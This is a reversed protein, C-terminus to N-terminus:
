YKQLPDLPEPSVLRMTQANNLTKPLEATSILRENSQPRVPKQWQISEKISLTTPLTHTNSQSKYFLKANTFFALRCVACKTKKASV